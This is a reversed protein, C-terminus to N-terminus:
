KWSETIWVSLQADYEALKYFTPLPVFRIILWKLNVFRKALVTLTLYNLAPPCPWHKRPQANEGPAVTPFAIAHYSAVLALRQLEGCTERSAM